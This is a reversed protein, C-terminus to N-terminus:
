RLATLHVLFPLGIIDSEWLRRSVFIGALRGQALSLAAHQWIATNFSHAMRGGEVDFAEKGHERYESEVDGFFLFERGIVADPSISDATEEVPTSVMSQSASRSGPRSTILNPDYRM